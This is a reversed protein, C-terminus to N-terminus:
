AKQDSPPSLEDFFGPTLRDKERVLPKTKQILTPTDGPAPTEATESTESWQRFIKKLKGLSFSTTYFLGTGPIGLTVRSGQPGVTVRAGHPGASVSGGSKSLNLTVGPLINVRKFFRFGM